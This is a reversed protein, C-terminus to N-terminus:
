NVDSSRDKDKWPAPQESSKIMVSTPVRFKPDHPTLVLDNPRVMAAANKGLSTIALILSKLVL